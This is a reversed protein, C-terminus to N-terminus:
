KLLKRLPRLNGSKMSRTIKQMLGTHNFDVLTEVSDPQGELRLTITAHVDPVMKSLSRSNNRIREALDLIMVVDASNAGMIFTRRFTKNGNAEDTTTWNNAM